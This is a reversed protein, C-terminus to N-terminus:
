TWNGILVHLDDLRTDALKCLLENRAHLLESLFSVDKETFARVIRQPAQSVHQVADPLEIVEWVKRRQHARCTEVYLGSNRDEAHTYTDRM